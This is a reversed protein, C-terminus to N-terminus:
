KSEYRRVMFVMYRNEEAVNEVGSWLMFANPNSKSPQGSVIVDAMNKAVIVKKSQLLNYIDPNYIMSVTASETVGSSMATVLMNGFTSQWQCYHTGALQKWITTAGTGPIYASDEYWFKLPTTLKLNIM